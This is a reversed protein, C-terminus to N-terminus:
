KIYMAVSEIESVQIMVEIATNLFEICNDKTINETSIEELVNINKQIIKKVEAANSYVFFISNANQWDLKAALCQQQVKQACYLYNEMTKESQVTDRVLILSDQIKMLASTEYELIKQLEDQFDKESYLLKMVKDESRDEATFCAGISIVNNEISM